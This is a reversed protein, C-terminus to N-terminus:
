SKLDKRSIRVYRVIRGLGFYFFLVGSGKFFVSAYWFGTWVEQTDLSAGSLISTNLAADIFDPLIWTLNAVFLFRLASFLYDNTIKTQEQISANTYGEREQNFRQRTERLSRLTFHWGNKGFAVIVAGLVSGLAGVALTYGLNEM